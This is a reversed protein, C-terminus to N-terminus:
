TRNVPSAGPGTPNAVTGTSTIRWEFPWQAGPSTQVLSGSWTVNGNDYTSTQAPLVLTPNGPLGAAPIVILGSPTGPFTPAPDVDYAAHLVSIANNTGAEALAFAKQGANSGNAHRGSSSTLYITATLAITLVLMIGLAMVLAIGREDSLRVVVPRSMRTAGAALASTMRQLKQM